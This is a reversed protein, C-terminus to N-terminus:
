CPIFLKEINGLKNLILFFAALNVRMDEKTSKSCFPYKAKSNNAM